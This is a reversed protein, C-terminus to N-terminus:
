YTSILWHYDGYALDKDPKFKKLISKIYDKDDPMEKVSLYNAAWALRGILLEVDVSAFYTAKKGADEIFEDIAHHRSGKIDEFFAKMFKRFYYLRTYTKISKWDNFEDIGFMQEITMRKKEKRQNLASWEESYWNNDEDYRDRHKECFSHIINGILRITESNEILLKRKGYKLTISADIISCDRPDDKPIESTITYLEDFSEIATPYYETVHTTIQYIYDLTFLFMYWFQDVNINFACISAIIEPKFFRERYSALYADQQPKLYKNCLESRYKIIYDIIERKQSEINKGLSNAIEFKVEYPIRKIFIEDNLLQGHNYFFAFQHCIHWDSPIYADAYTKEPRKLIIHSMKYVLRLLDVNSYYDNYPHVNPDDEKCFPLEEIKYESLKIKDM